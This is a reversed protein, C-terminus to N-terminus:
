LLVRSWRSTGRLVHTFLMTLQSWVSVVEAHATCFHNISSKLSVQATGLSPGLSPCM